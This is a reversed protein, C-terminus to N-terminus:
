DDDLRWEYSAPLGPRDTNWVWGDRRVLPARGVLSTLTTGAGAVTTGLFTALDDQRTWGTARLYNLVSRQKPTLKGTPSHECCRARAFADCRVPCGNRPDGLTRESKAPQPQTM